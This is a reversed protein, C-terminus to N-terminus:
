TVNTMKITWAGKGVLKTFPLNTPFNVHIGGDSDVTYDLPMGDAGLLTM